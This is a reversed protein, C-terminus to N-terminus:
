RIQVANIVAEWDAPNPQQLINIENYAASKKKLRAWRWDCVYSLLVTSKAGLAGCLHITANDISVVEDCAGILSALGDIDSQNNIQNVQIIEVGLANKVSAIEATVDGYQLNVLKVKPSSVARVLDFLSIGAGKGLNSENKTKWSIGLLRENEGAILESRLYNTQLNDGVLWGRSTQGFSEPTKRFHQGLSTVAIHFDYDDEAIRSEKGYYIVDEPFSRKYLPILREDCQIILKACVVYLEPIMSSFFIEDGIGQDAWVLVSANRQGHWVPKQSILFKGARETTKWRWENLMFGESFNLSALLALSMNHYADAFEPDIEISKKFYQIAEEFKQQDNLANGLNYHAEAYAPKFQIAKGYATIAEALRGQNKLVNGINNHAEAYDPKISLARGYSKTAEELKGQEALSTGLNNHGEFNQPDVETVKKFAISADEERGLGKNAVGLLFWVFLAKPYQKALTQTQKVVAIFQGQEYLTVLQNRIEPPPGQDTDLQATEGLIAQAKQAKKNNPFAKLIAAYITRAKELEGKKVHSKGKTLAQEVSLKAM